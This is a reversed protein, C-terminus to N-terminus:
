CGPEDDFAAAGLLGLITDWMRKGARYILLSAGVNATAWQLALPVSFAVGAAQSRLYEIAIALVLCIGGQAWARARKARVKFLATLGLVILVAALGVLWTNAVLMEAVTTM